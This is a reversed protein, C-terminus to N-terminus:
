INLYRKVDYNINDYVDKLPVNYKQAIIKCEEYEPAYKVIKDKHYAFKISINGYTTKLKIFKRDLTERKFENFRIGFTTTEKLIYEIIKNLNDKECLVCLKVAPRNKKMYISHTYVDLAGMNLIEEYLYSYIESNM